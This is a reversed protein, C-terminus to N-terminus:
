GPSRGVNEKTRGLRVAERADARLGRARCPSSGHPATGSRRFAPDPRPILRAPAPSGPPSAARRAGPPEICRVAPPATVPSGPASRITRPRGCRAPPTRQPFISAAGPVPASPSPGTRGSATTDPAGTRGRAPPTTGPPGVLCGPTSPRVATAPPPFVPDDLVDVVEALTGGRGDGAPVGRPVVVVGNRTGCAARVSQRAGGGPPRGAPAPIPGSGPLGRGRCPM